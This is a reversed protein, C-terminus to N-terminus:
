FELPPIEGGGGELPDPLGFIGGGGDGGEGEAPSEGGGEGGGEGSQGGGGFINGIGNIAGAIGSIAQGAKGAAWLGLIGALGTETLAVETSDLGGAPRTPPPSGEIVDVLYAGPQIPGASTQPWQRAAMFLAICAVGLLAIALPLKTGGGGDDDSTYAKFAGFGSLGAVAFFVARWGQGPAFMAFGRDLVVATGHLLSSADSVLTSPASLLGTVSSLASGGTNMTGPGGQHDTLTVKQGANGLITSAYGQGAALDGPGANYAALANRVSGGEEHLLSKMYREYAQFADGPNFPSGHGWTAWTGPEFQAIGEAGTPSVANPNWDSEDTIQAAIVSVPLGTYKAAAKVDADYQSPISVV